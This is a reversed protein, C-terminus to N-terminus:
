QSRKVFRESRVGVGDDRSAGRSPGGFPRDREVLEDVTQQWVIRGDDRRGNSLLGVRGSDRRKPAEDVRKARALTFDGVCPAAGPHRNATLHVMGQGSSVTSQRQVIKAFREFLGM